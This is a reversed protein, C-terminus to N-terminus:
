DLIVNNYKQIQYLSTEGMGLVTPIKNQLNNPKYALPSFINKSELELLIVSHPRLSCMKETVNTMKTNM